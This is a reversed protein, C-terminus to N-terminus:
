VLRAFLENSLLDGRVTLRLREGDPGTAGLRELLGADLAWEISPAFRDDTTWSIPAGLDTRLALILREAAATREDIVESGGTPAQAPTSALAALYPEM